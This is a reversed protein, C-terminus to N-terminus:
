ESIGALTFYFTAGQGETSQAWVKSGHKRVIREVTALGVGTGEFEESRHLRQFVGFLKDAYKMSFGVGNDRVFVANKDNTKLCGVEIVAEDRPRTYKIANSLLNIFVLRILGSDCEVTPLAEVRFEISRGETERKLEALADAVVGGLPTPQRKLEQRGLRALNLLDDVLLSMNRSGRRINDLYRLGEPPLLNAFDEDLIRAFADIHRLPARLDHAVSYTFAELEKNATSLEATRERVREELEANMLRVEEEALKRETIDNNIELIASPRGRDDRHLVWQSTVFM